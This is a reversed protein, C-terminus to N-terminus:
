HDFPLGGPRAGGGSVFIWVEIHGDLSQWNFEESFMFPHRAESCDQLESIHTGNM